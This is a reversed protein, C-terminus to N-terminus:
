KFRNLLTTLPRINCSNGGKEVNWPPKAGFAGARAIKEGPSTTRPDVATGASPLYSVALFSAFKLLRPEVITRSSRSILDPNFGVQIAFGLFLYINSDTNDIPMGGIIFFNRQM